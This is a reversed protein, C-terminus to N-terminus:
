QRSALAACQIDQHRIGHDSRIRPTHSFDGILEPANADRNKGFVFHLYLLPFATRDANKEIDIWAHIAGTDFLAVGASHNRQNTRNAIRAELKTSQVVVIALVAVQRLAFSSCRSVGTVISQQFQHAPDFAVAETYGLDNGCTGRCKWTREGVFSEPACVKDM